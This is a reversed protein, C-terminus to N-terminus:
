EHLAAGPSSSRGAHLSSSPLGTANPRGGVLVRCKPQSNAADVAVATSPQCYALTNLHTMCLMSCFCRCPSPEIDSSLLPVKAPLQRRVSCRGRAAPLAGADELACTRSHGVHSPLQTHTCPVTCAVASYALPRDPQLDHSEVAGPVELVHPWAPPSRGPRCVEHAAAAPASDCRGRPHQRCCCRASSATGARSHGIRHEIHTDASESGPLPLSCAHRGGCARAHM